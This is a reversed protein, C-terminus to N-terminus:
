EAARRMALFISHVVLKPDTYFLDDDSGFEHFAFIGAETMEPTIKIEDSTTQQAM